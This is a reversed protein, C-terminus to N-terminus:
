TRIFFIKYANIEKVIQKYSIFTQTQNQQIGGGLNNKNLYFPILSVHFHTCIKTDYTSVGM